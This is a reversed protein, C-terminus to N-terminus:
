KANVKCRTIINQKTGRYENHEKITGRISIKDGAKAEIINGTKWVFLNGDDDTFNYVYTTGYMTDYHGISGLKLEKSIKDGVEGVYQKTKDGFAEDNAKRIFEDFAFPEIDIVYDGAANERLIHVDRGDSDKCIVTNIASIEICNFNDKKESFHWGFIYDFKGGAAKIEDRISFTDGLVRWFTGESNFGLKSFLIANRKSANKRYRELRKDMLKKAYDETRVLIQESGKGSGGCEFCVGGQVHAYYSIFGTGGCRKCRTDNYYRTGNRDERIFTCNEDYYSFDNGRAVYEKM